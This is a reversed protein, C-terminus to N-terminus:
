HTGDSISTKALGYQLIKTKLFADASRSKGANGNVAGSPALTMTWSPCSYNRQQQERRNSIQIRQAFMYTRAGNAHFRLRTCTKLGGRLRQPVQIIDQQLIEYTTEARRAKRNWWATNTLDEYRQQLLSCQLGAQRALECGHGHYATLDKDEKLAVAGM